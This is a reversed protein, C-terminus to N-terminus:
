YCDSERGLLDEIDYAAVAKCEFGALGTTSRHFRRLLLKHSMCLDMLNRIKKDAM